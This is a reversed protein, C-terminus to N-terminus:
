RRWRASRGRRPCRGRRASSRGGTLRRLQVGGESLGVTGCAGDELGDGEGVLGAGRTHQVSIRSERKEVAAAVRHREGHLSSTARSRVTRARSLDPEEGSSRGREVQREIVHWLVVSLATCSRFGCLYCRGIVETGHNNRQLDSGTARRGLRGDDVDTRHEGAALRRRRLRGGPLRLVAPVPGALVARPRPGARADSLPDPRGFHM